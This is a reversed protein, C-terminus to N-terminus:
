RLSFDETLRSFLVYNEVKLNHCYKTMGCKESWGQRGGVDEAEMPGRQMRSSAKQVSLIVTLRIDVSHRGLAMCEIDMSALCVVTGPFYIWQVFSIVVCLSTFYPSTELDSSLPM